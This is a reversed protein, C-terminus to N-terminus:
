QMAKHDAFICRGSIVKMGLARADEEASPNEAGPQLWVVAPNRTKLEEVIAPIADPSRYIDVIELPDSVDKLSAVVRIGEIHPLGPNVGIVEFGNEILYRAIWHSPRTANASIGIVVVKKYKNLITKVEAPISMGEM